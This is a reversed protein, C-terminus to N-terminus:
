KKRLLFFWFAFAAGILLMISSNSTGVTVNGYTSGGATGGSAAGGAGGTLNPLAPPM